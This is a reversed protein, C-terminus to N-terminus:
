LKKNWYLLGTNILTETKVLLKWHSINIFYNSEKLLRNTYSDMKRVGDISEYASLQTNYINLIM